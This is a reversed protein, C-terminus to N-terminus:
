NLLKAREKVARKKLEKTYKRLNFGIAMLTIEEEVGSLGRRHLRDYGYDQKIIGFTGESYVRRANMLEKGVPTDLKARINDKYSELEPSISIKRNGKAKTCKSKNPCQGCHKNELQKIVRDYEGRTETREGVEEFTYGEPCKYSGDDQKMHVTKYKNKSTIRKNEETMGVYKTYFDINHILSFKNNDFSCYGADAAAIQPYHGYDEKFREMVPIYTKLDNADTNVLIESIFGCSVGFQVNYGPKFTNNHCYYDYKMHLIGADVDTKSCSNRGDLMDFMITYKFLKVALEDYEEYLKQIESKKHGRGDVPKIGMSIMFQQLKSSIALLYLFDPLKLISYRVDIGQQEFYKNTRMILKCAKKWAQLRYRKTAKSWIFSNKTANAEFKTGDLTLIWFYIGLDIAIRKSIDTFLKHISPKLRAIFRCITMHTPKAGCSVYMYRINYKCLEATKRTSKYEGDAYSLLVIRFLQLDSYKSTRSNKDPADIYDYINMRETISKVIRCVDFEDIDNDFSICVDSLFSLQNTIGYSQTNKLYCSM